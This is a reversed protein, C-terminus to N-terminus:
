TPLVLVLRWQEAPPSIALGLLGRCKQVGAILGRPTVAALPHYEGALWAEADPRSFAPASAAVTILAGPQNSLAARRNLWLYDRLSSDKCAVDMRGLHQGTIGVTTGAPAVTLAAAIGPVMTLLFEIGSLGRLPVRVELPIFDIAKNAADANCMRHAIDAAHRLGADVLAPSSDRNGYASDFFGGAVSAAADATKRAEDLNRLLPTLSPDTKAKSSMSMVASVLHAHITTLLGATQLLADRATESAVFEVERELRASDLAENLAGAHKALSQERRRARTRAVWEPVRAEFAHREPFPKSIFDFVNLPIARRLNDDSDFASVIVHGLAPDSLEAAEIFALGNMEPMHIDVLCLDFRERALAQLAARANSCCVLSCTKGLRLRLSAHIQTEDDVVLIRPIALDATDRGM